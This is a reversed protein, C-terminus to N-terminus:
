EKVFKAVENGVKIIYIGSQLTSINITTKNDFLLTRIVEKGFIDYISVDIGRLGGKRLPFESNNQNQTTFSEEKLKERKAQVALAINIQLQEIDLWNNINEAQYTSLNATLNRLTTITNLADTYNNLYKQLFLVQEQSYINYRNQLDNLLLNTYQKNPTTDNSIVDRVAYMQLNSKNGTLVTIESETQERVNKGDQFHKLFRKLWYNIELNDIEAKAKRPLPSNKLLAITKYITVWLVTYFFDM